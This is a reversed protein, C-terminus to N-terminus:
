EHSIPFDLLLIAGFSKQWPWNNPFPTAPCYRGHLLCQSDKTQKSQRITPFRLSFITSFNLNSWLSISQSLIHSPYEKGLSAPLSCGLTKKESLNGTRAFHSSYIITESNSSVEKMPSVERHNQTNLCILSFRVVTSPWVRQTGGLSLLTSQKERHILFNPKALLWKVVRLM